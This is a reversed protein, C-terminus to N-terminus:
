GGRSPPIDEGWVRRIKEDARRQDEEDERRRREAEGTRELYRREKEAEWPTM